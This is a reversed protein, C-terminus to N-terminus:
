ATVKDLSSYSCRIDILIKEGDEPPIREAVADRIMQKVEAANFEIKM